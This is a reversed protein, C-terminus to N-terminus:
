IWRMIRRCFVVFTYVCLALSIAPYGAFIYGGAIALCLWPWSEYLWRPLWCKELM